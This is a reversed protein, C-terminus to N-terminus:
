LIIIGRGKVMDYFAGFTMKKQRSGPYLMFTAFLEDLTIVRM